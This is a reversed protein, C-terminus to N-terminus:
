LNWAKVYDTWNIRNNMKTGYCPFAKEAIKASGYQQLSSWNVLGGTQGCKLHRLQLETLEVSWMNFGALECEFVQDIALEGSFLSFHSHMFSNTFTYSKDFVFITVNGVSWVTCLINATIDLCNHSVIVLYYVFLSVLISSIMCSSWRAMQKFQVHQIQVNLQLGKWKVMSLLM